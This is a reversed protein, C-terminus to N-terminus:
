MCCDTNHLPSLPADWTLCVTIGDFSSNLKYKGNASKIFRGRKFARQLAQSASPRFNSQLPYRAAMWNFLDKPAMLGDPETTEELAEVIMEEYSPIGNASTPMSPVSQAHESSPPHPFHPYAPYGPPPPPYVGPRTHPYAMAPYGHPWAGGANTYYPTHPYAAQSLGAPLLAALKDPPKKEEKVSVAPESVNQALSEPNESEKLTKMTASEEQKVSPITPEEAVPPTLVPQRLSAIAANLDKPWITSTITPPVHAELTLCIEIIQEKPLLALYSRKVEENGLVTLLDELLYYPTSVQIRSTM